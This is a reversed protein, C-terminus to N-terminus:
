LDVIDEFSTNGDVAALLFGMRADLKYGVIDSLPVKLKPVQSLAGVQEAYRNELAAAVFRQAWSQKRGRPAAVLPM